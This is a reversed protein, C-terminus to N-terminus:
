NNTGDDDDMGLLGAVLEDLVQEPDALGRLGASMGALGTAGGAIQDVAPLKDLLLEALREDISEEAVLYEVLLPRSQGLRAGRGELQDVEGPRIPLMLVVIADTDQLDLSEGLAQYTGVIVAHQDAAMYAQVYAARDRVPDDGDTVWVQLDAYRAHQRQAARKRLREGFDRADRKRGSFVLVKGRGNDLHSWVRDLAWGRKRSAADLRRLETLQAKDWSTASGARQKVALERWARRYEARDARSLPLPRDQHDVPIRLVDRRKPPIQDRLVDYPVVHRTWALRGTLEDAHSVGPPEDVLSGGFGTPAANCYRKRFRTVTQGWADPEVLTLQGWLDRLRNYVPTATTCLRRDAVLALRYMTASMNEQETRAFTERDDDGVVLRYKVRDSSRAKHSEDFVVSLGPSRGLVRLEDLHSRAAEWGVLVVPRRGTETCEALYRDLSTTWRGTPHGDADVDAVVWPDRKRGTGKPRIAFPRVDAFREIQRAWQVRAAAKVVVIVAGPRALAWLIAMVTKGAGTPAHLHASGMAIITALAERQFPLLWDAWLESHVESSAILAAADDETLPRMATPASLGHRRWVAARSPAAWWTGALGLRNLVDAVAPGASQPVALVPARRGVQVGPIERLVDAQRDDYGPLEIRYYGRVHADM